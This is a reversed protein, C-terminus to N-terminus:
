LKVKDTAFLVIATIAVAVVLIAAAGEKGSFVPEQEGKIERDNRRAWIYVPIGLALFCFAMLLYTWGAAYIMWVAYATGAIGCLLAMGKKVPLNAPYEETDCLKWLYLTCFFYPPLIMVGTVSLMTNWANNALGVVIMCIQMIGSSVWLSVTPSGVTNEQTFIAPFSGDKAAAYPIQAIMITFALWSTLLAIIVGLNMLVGGWHGHVADQLIQATSPNNLGALEHQTMHGFPLVSILVYIGLCCLFGVLTAKGVDKQSRARGSVVVAGEIGIFAWLTVLMTSKIQSAFSGLKPVGPIVEHSFSDAFVTWRFTFLLVLIFIALPLLKCITGIVNIGAAQRVGRLVAFNMLWIVCSGGIISWLNNGGTFVGPFFYNLADMLLVAYGVNGFINSLWYSWAMQFGAFRGFGLRAYAYIGTTADPRADALIRFTNALFFIGIGTIIWSVIVAGSSASQAMNQPLSFIGGGIMASVVLAALALWGLKTNESSM